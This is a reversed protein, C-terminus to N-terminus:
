CSGWLMAPKMTSFPVHGSRSISTVLRIRLHSSSVEEALFGGWPASPVSYSVRELIPSWWVGRGPAGPSAQQQVAASSGPQQQSQHPLWRWFLQRWGGVAKEADLMFKLSQLQYPHMQVSLGAPQEAAEREAAFPMFLHLMNWTLLTVRYLYYSTCKLLAVHRAHLVAFAASREHM